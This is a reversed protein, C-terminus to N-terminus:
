IFEVNEFYKRFLAREIKRERRPNLFQAMYETANKSIEICEKEHDLGWEFKEMLDSFDSKLPIYHVFPKLRDEMIWSVRTVPPMMVVSNSCLQWKLGSAVDNGELSVIFKHNLQEKLSVPPKLYKTFEDKNQCITSFGADVKPHEFFDQVFKFRSSVDALKGTTAGRWIILDKKSIYGIDNVVVTTIRGFHRQRNINLLIASGDDIAKSKTFFYIKLKSLNRSLDGWFFYFCRSHYEKGLSELTSVIPKIFRRKTKNLGTPLQMNGKDLEGRLVSYNVFLMKGMALEDSVQAGSIRVKKFYLDGLYYELRSDISITNQNKEFRFFGGGYKAIERLKFMNRFYLRSIQFRDFKNIIMSKPVDAHDGPGALQDCHGAGNPNRHFRTGHM